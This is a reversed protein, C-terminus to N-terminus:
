WEMRIRSSGIPTHNSDLGGKNKKGGKGKNNKRKRKGGGAGDVKEEVGLPSQM